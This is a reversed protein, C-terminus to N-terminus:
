NVVKFKIPFGYLVSVPTDRQMGPTMKPLRDIVRQAEKELAPHPARAMIEVIEGTQDVKFQVDIKQIGSLGYQQAIDTNFKRSVFKTISKQFCEMKAEESIENECGPFVPKHEVARFNMVGIPKKVEPKAKGIEPVPPTSEPTVPNTTEALSTNKTVLIENIIPKVERRQVEIKKEIPVPDQYIRYDTMVFLDGDDEVQVSPPIDMAKTLFKMELVGYTALLCVILGIQFYLTSNKQLNADHKQSKKVGKENQRVFEHIKKLIKM